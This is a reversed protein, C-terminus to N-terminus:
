KGPCDTCPQTLIGILPAAHKVTRGAALSVLGAVRREEDSGPAAAPARAGSSGGAPLRAATCSAAALLVSIILATRM